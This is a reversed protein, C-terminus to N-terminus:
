IRHMGADEKGIETHKRERPAAVLAGIFQITVHMLLQASSLGSGVDRPRDVAPRRRTPLSRGKEHSGLVYSTAPEGRAGSKDKRM